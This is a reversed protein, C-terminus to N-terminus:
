VQSNPKPPPQPPLQGKKDKLAQAKRFHALAARIEDKMKSFNFSYVNIMNSTEQRELNKDIKLAL